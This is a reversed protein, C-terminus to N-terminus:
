QGVARLKGVLVAAQLEDMRVLRHGESVYTSIRAGAHRDLWAQGRDDVDWVRAVDKGEARRMARGPRQISKIASKGGTGVIVDRLEPIDTGQEFLNTVLVDADGRRLKKVVEDRQGASWRGWVFECRLGEARLMALLTRGHELHKVYLLAPKAAALSMATLLRNRGASRVVCREYVDKWGLDRPVSRHRFPVMTVEVPTLQGDGVLAEAPVDVIKPGTAAMVYANRKDGRAFPSGSFGLRYTAPCAMAVKYDRASGLGHCEDVILGHAGGLLEKVHPARLKDHLSQAMAITVRAPRWEGEGVVGAVEGTRLRMREATQGLLDLQNVLIVWRCPVSAALAIFVETKGAGTGAKVVGRVKALCADLMDRQYSRLWGADFGNPPEPRREDLVEVALGRSAAERQVSALLGAPFRGRAEDFLRHKGDWPPHGANGAARWRAVAYRYSPDDVTLYDRLFGLEPEDARAVEAWAPGVRVWM